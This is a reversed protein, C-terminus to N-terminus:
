KNRKYKRCHIKHGGDRYSDGSNIDAMIVIEGDRTYSISIGGSSLHGFSDDEEYVVSQILHESLNNIIEILKERVEAEDNSYWSGVWGFNLKIFQKAVENVPFSSLARELKKELIERKIEKETM